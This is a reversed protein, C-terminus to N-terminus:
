EHCIRLQQNINYFDIIVQNIFFSNSKEVDKMLNIQFENSYEVPEPCVDIRIIRSCGALIIVLGTAVKFGAM